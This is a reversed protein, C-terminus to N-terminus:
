KSGARAAPQGPAGQASATITKTTSARIAALAEQPAAEGYALTIRLAVQENGPAPIEVTRKTILGERTTLDRFVPIEEPDRVAVDLYIGSESPDYEHEFGPQTDARLYFGRWTTQIKARESNSLSSLLAGQFLGIPNYFLGKPPAAGVLRLTMVFLLIFGSTKVSPFKQRSFERPSVGM